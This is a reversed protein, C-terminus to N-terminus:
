NDPIGGGGGCLSSPAAISVAPRAAHIVGAQAAPAAVALGAAALSLAVVLKSAKLVLM